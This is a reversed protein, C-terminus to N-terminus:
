KGYLVNQMAILPSSQCIPKDTPCEYQSICKAFRRDCQCLQYSCKQTSGLAHYPVAGSIHCTICILVSITILKSLKIMMIVHSFLQHLLFQKLDIMILLSNILWEM